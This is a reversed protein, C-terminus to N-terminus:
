AVSLDVRVFMGAAPPTWSAVERPLYQECCELMVDRRETYQARLHVLWELFGAHGWTEDLLKYLVLQSLGSPGQVSCETHRVIREVLQAPGTVWGCRSGPFIIKSFSDLRLVRGDTDIALLSPVLAALFSDHATEDKPAPATPGPASASPEYPDMQLYYYPDDEIIFLDHKQAVAYLERRRQLSQTAGTPNQGSPITYLVRPRPAGDHASPDWSSLVQDLHWPLLGEECMRVGIPRVGMPAATEFSAPYAYEETMIFDGPRTLM